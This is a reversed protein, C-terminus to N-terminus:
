ISLKIFELLSTLQKKQFWWCEPFHAIKKKCHGVLSKGYTFLERQYNNMSLGGDAKSFLELSIQPQKRVDPTLISCKLFFLNRFIWEFGGIRRQPSLVEYRLFTLHEPSGFFM